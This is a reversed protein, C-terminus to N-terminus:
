KLHSDEMPPAPYKKLCWVLICVIGPKGLQLPALICWHTWTDALGDITLTDISIEGLPELQWQQNHILRMIENVTAIKRTRDM